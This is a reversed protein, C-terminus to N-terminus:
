FKLFNDPTMGAHGECMLLKKPVGSPPYIDTGLSIKGVLGYVPGRAVAALFEGKPDSWKDTEGTQLM